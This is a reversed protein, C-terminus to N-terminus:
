SIKKTSKEMEGEINDKDLIRWQSIAYFMGLSFFEIAVIQKIKTNYHQNFNPTLTHTECKVIIDVIRDM